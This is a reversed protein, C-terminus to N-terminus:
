FINDFNNRGSSAHYMGGYLKLVLFLVSTSLIKYEELTRTDELEKGAYIIRQIQAPFNTIEYLKNKLEEITMSSNFTVKYEVGSFNKIVLVPTPKEIMVYSPEFTVQTTETSGSEEFPM